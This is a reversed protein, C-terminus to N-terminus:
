PETAAPHGASRRGPVCDVGGPHFPHCRCLRLVGLWLGKTCGHTEIAMMCYASCSPYFRCCDGLLPSLAARYAKILLILLRKM